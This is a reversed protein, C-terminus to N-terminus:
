ELGHKTLKEIKTDFERIVEGLTPSQDKMKNMAFGTAMLVAGIVETVIPIPLVLLVGGITTLRKALGGDNKERNMHRLSPFYGKTEKLSSSACSYHKNTKKIDRTVERITRLDEEDYRGM